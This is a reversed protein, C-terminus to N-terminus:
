HEKRLADRQCFLSFQGAVKQMESVHPPKTIFVEAGLSLSKQAEVPSASTTFILAPVRAFAAQKKIEELTRLGDWVPMNIDLVICCPLFAGAPLSELFKMLLLGNKFCIVQVDPAIQRVIDTLLDQDDMDDEAYLLYKEPFNRSDYM